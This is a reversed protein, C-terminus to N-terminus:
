LGTAPTVEIHVIGSSYTNKGERVLFGGNGMYQNDRERSQEFLQRRAERMRIKVERIAKKLETLSNMRAKLNDNEKAYMENQQVMASNEAQLVSFKEDLDALKQQVVRHDAFLKSLRRKSARLYDKLAANEAKLQDQGAKEKELDQLLNQAQNHLAGAEEQVESVLRAVDRRESLYSVLKVVSAVSIGILVAILINKPTLKSM